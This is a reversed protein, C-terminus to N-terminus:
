LDFMRPRGSSTRTVRAQIQSRLFLVVVAFLASPLWIWLVENGVVALGRASFFGAGIPSVAIPRFAFFHRTNDFPAFLAAGLGGDTMADLIGHSAAALFLFLWVTGHRSPHPAGRVAVPLLLLALIGAFVFSHTFGRHGLFDGYHIGFRFGIVDFDPVIASLAGVARVRVTLAPGFAASLCLAAVAHSFITPM